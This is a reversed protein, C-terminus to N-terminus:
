RKGTRTPTTSAIATAHKPGALWGLGAELKKHPGFCNNELDKRGEQSPRKLAPM